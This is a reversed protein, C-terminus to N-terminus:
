SIQMLLRLKIGVTIKEKFKIDERIYTTLGGFSSISPDCSIRHYKDLEFSQMQDGRLHTEQICIIPLNLKRKSIESIMVELEKCSTTVGQINLSLVNVNNQHARLESLFSNLDYYSSKKISTANFDFHLNDSDYLNRNLQEVLCNNEPGSHNELINRTLQSYM